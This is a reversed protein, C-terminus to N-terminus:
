KNSLNHYEKHIQKINKKTFKKGNESILEWLSLSLSFM